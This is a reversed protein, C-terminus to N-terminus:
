KEAFVVQYPAEEPIGARAARKQLALHVKDDVTIYYTKYIFLVLSNRIVVKVGM